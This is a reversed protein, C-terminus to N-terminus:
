NSAHFTDAGDPQPEITLADYGGRVGLGALMAHLDVASLADLTDPSSWTSDCETCLWLPRDLQTLRATRVWDSSCVSCVQRMPKEGSMAVRHRFFPGSRWDSM